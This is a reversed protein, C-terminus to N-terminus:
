HDLSVGSMFSGRLKTCEVIVVHALVPPEAMQRCLALALSTKGCGSSTGSSRSTGCILLGGGALGSCSSGLSHVLRRTLCTRLHDLGEQACQKVGSSFALVFEIYM